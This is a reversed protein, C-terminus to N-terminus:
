DYCVVCLARSSIRLVLTISMHLLRSNLFWYMFTGEAPMMNPYKKTKQEERQAESMPPGSYQRPLRRKALRQPHSPPYFKTPKELNLPKSTSADTSAHQCPQLRWPPVRVIRVARQPGLHGCRPLLFRPILAPAM